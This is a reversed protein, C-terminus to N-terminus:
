NLNDYKIAKENSSLKLKIVECPLLQTKFKLM